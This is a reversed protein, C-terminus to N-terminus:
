QPMGPTKESTMVNGRKKERSIGSVHSFILLAAVPEATPRGKAAVMEQTITQPPAVNAAYLHHICLADVVQGFFPIRGHVACGQGEQEGSAQCGGRYHCLLLMVMCILSYCLLLIVTAV